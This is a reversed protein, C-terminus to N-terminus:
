GISKLSRRELQRRRWKLYKQMLYMAQMGLLFSCGILLNLFDDDRWELVGTHSVVILASLVAIVLSHGMAPGAPIVRRSSASQRTASSSRHRGRSRGPEADSATPQPLEGQAASPEEQRASAPKM